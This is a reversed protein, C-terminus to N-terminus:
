ECRETMKIDSFGGPSWGEDSKQHVRSYTLSLRRKVFQVHIYVLDVVNSYSASQVTEYPIFIKNQIFYNNFCEALVM